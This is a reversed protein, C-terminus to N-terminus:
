TASPTQIFNQPIIEIKDFMQCYNLSGDTARHMGLVHGFEDVVPLGCDGIVTACTHAGGDLFDGSSVKGDLHFVYCKTPFSKKSKRLGIVGSLTSNFSLLDDQDNAPPRVWKGDQFIIQEKDGFRAVIKKANPNDLVTHKNFHIQNWGLFCHQLKEGDVVLEGCARRIPDPNVKPTAVIAETHSPKGHQKKYLKWMRDKKKHSIAENKELANRMAQEAMDRMEEEETLDAWSKGNIASRSSRYYDDPRIPRSSVTSPQTSDKFEEESNHLRREFLSIEEDITSDYSGSMDSTSGSNSQNAMIERQGIKRKGEALSVLVPVFKKCGERHPLGKLYGCHHCWAANKSAFKNQKPVLLYNKELLSVRARLQKVVEALNEEVKLISMAPKVAKVIQTTKKSENVNDNKVSKKLVKVIVTCIFMLFLCAIACTKPDTIYAKLRSLSDIPVYNELKEWLKEVGKYLPHVNNKEKFFKYRNIINDTPASEAYQLMLRDECQLIRKIQEDWRILKCAKMEADDNESNDEASVFYVKTVQDVKDVISEFCHPDLDEDANKDNGSFFRYSVLASSIMSVYTRINAWARPGMVAVCPIVMMGQLVIVWREFESIL